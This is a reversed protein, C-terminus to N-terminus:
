LLDQNNKLHNELRNILISIMDYHPDKSGGDLLEEMLSQCKYLYSLLVRESKIDTINSNSYDNLDTNSEKLVAWEFPDRNRSYQEMSWKLNDTQIDIIESIGNQYKIHIQYKPIQKM